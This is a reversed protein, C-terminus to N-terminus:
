SRLPLLSHAVVRVRAGSSDLVTVRPRAGGDVLAVPVTTLVATLTGAVTHVTLVAGALPKPVELAAAVAHVAAVTGALAAGSGALSGALTHTAAVAGALPKPVDLAGAVAHTAAIAGALPKPVTLAGAVAHTAAVGGALPKPVTLGGAVAHTAAIAGALPKPVTLAGAVAHTAAVSGSFEAGGPASTPVWAAGPVRFLQWPNASVSRIEDDTLERDWWFAAHIIGDFRADGGANWSGLQIERPALTNLPVTYPRDGRVGNFWADMGDNGRWRAALVGSTGVTLPQAFSGGDIWAGDFAAVELGGNAGYGMYAQNVGGVGPWSGLVTARGVGLRTLVCVGTFQRDGRPPGHEVGRIWQAGSFRLGTGLRAPEAPPITGNVLILPRDAAVNRPSDGVSAWLLGATIPNGWDVEAYEQPQADLPLDLLLPM